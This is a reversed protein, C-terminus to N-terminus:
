IVARLIMGMMSWDVLLTGDYLDGVTAIQLYTRESDQENGFNKKSAAVVKAEDMEEETLEAAYMHVHHTSLTAASQRSGFYNLRNPNIKIGTEEFVEDAAVQKPDKDTKFTSGGPVEYVFGDLNRVPSRFEKILVLETSSVPSAKKYLVVCSMDTRTFVFENLKNRGEAQIYISAWLTYAFVIDKHKGTRFSWLLKAENISNGVEMHAMYWSQFSKTNWIMLPINREGGERKAGKGMVTIANTLTGGLTRTQPICLKTAYYKQYRTKEADDPCGFVVKGSNKWTGWEDNTTLAPMTKLERPVWFVICDSMNLCKEEWRVQWEWVIDYESHKAEPVFVVGDYGIDELFQLAEPRWSKVQKDRPTPGALFLSRKFSKPSSEGVYVIEM